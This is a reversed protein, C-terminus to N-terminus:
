KIWTAEIKYSNNEEEKFKLFQMRDGVDKEGSEVMISRYRYHIAAWNDRILINDFYLKEIKQSTPLQSMADKYQEKTRATGDLGYSVADNIYNSEIWNLYDNAEGRHM